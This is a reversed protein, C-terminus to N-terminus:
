MRSLGRSDKVWALPAQGGTAQVHPTGTGVAWALPMKVGTAEALPAWANAPFSIGIANLGEEEQGGKGHHRAEGTSWVEEQTGEALQLQELFSTM